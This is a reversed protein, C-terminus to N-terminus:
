SQQERQQCKALIHEMRQITAKQQEASLTWLRDSWRITSNCEEAQSSQLFGPWTNVQLLRFVEKMAAAFLQAAFFRLGVSAEAASSSAAAAVDSSRSAAMTPQKGDEPIAVADPSFAAAAISAARSHLDRGASSSSLEAQARTQLQALLSMTRQQDAASLNIQSPASNQIFAAALAKAGALVASVSVGTAAGTQSGRGALSGMVLDTESPRPALGKHKSDRREGNLAENLSNPGTEPLCLSNIYLRAQLLFQVNEEQLSKAAYQLLYQAAVPDILCGALTTYDQDGSTLLSTQRVDSSLTSYDDRFNVSVAGIVSTEMSDRSTWARLQSGARQRGGSSAAEGPSVPQQDSLTTGDNSKTAQLVKARQAKVQLRRGRVGAAKMSIVWVEVSPALLAAFSLVVGLLLVINQTLVLRSTRLTYSSEPFSVAAFIIISVLMILCSLVIGLMLRQQIARQRQQKSDTQQGMESSGAIIFRNLASLGSTLRVLLWCGNLAVIVALFVTAHSGYDCQDYPVMAGGATAEYAQSVSVSSACLAVCWVINLALCVSSLLLLRRSWQQKSYLMRSLQKQLTAMLGTVGLLFLVAGLDALVVRAICNATSLSGLNAVVYALLLVSGVLVAWMCLAGSALKTILLNSARLGLWASANLSPVAAAVSAGPQAAAVKGSSRTPLSTVIFPAFLLFLVIAAVAQFARAASSSSPMASCAVSDNRPLPYSPLETCGVSWAYSVERSLTSEDCQSLTWSQYGAACNPQFIADVHQCLRHMADPISRNFYVIDALLLRFPKDDELTGYQNFAPLPYNSPSASKLVTTEISYVGPATWASQSRSSQYPPLAASAIALGTQFVKQPNILYTLLTWAVDPQAADAMISAVSGGLFTSSGPVYGIAHPADPNNYGDYFPEAGWPSDITMGTFYHLTDWESGTPWPDTFNDAAWGAYDATGPDASHDVMYMQYIVSTFLSLWAEDKYLQCTGYDYSTSGPLPVILPANSQQLLLAMQKYEEDWEGPLYVGYGLGSQKISAATQVFADWTWSSTGDLNTWDGLPPPPVLGLTDFTSRNWFVVRMDSLLPVGYWSGAQNLLYFYYSSMDATISQSTQQQYAAFYENLALLEGEFMRQPLQTTGYMLLDPCAQGEGGCLPSNAVNGWGQNQVVVTYQDVYSVATANWVRSDLVFREVAAFVDIFQVSTWGPAWVLLSTPGNGFQASFFNTLADLPVLSVAKAASLLVGNIDTINIAVTSTNLVGAGSLSDNAALTVGQKIACDWQLAQAGPVLLEYLTFNYAIDAAQLASPLFATLTGYTVNNVTSSLSVSLVRTAGLASTGAHVSVPFTAYHPSLTLPLASCDISDAQAATPLLCCCSLSACVAAAVTLRLLALLFRVTHHMSRVPPASPLPTFELTCLASCARRHLPVLSPILPLPCISRTNCRPPLARLRQVRNPADGRGLHCVLRTM